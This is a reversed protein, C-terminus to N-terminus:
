IASNGRRARSAALGFAGIISGLLAAPLVLGFGGSGGSLTTTLAVPISTATVTAMRDAKSLDPSRPPVTAATVGAFLDGGARNLAAVESASLGSPLKEAGTRVAGTPTPVQEIYQDIWPDSTVAAAAAAPSALAGCTVLGVLLLALSRNRMSSGIM